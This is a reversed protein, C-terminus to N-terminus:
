ATAEEEEDEYPDRELDKLARDMANMLVRYPVPDQNQGGETAPMWSKRTAEMFSDVFKARLHEELIKIAGPRDGRTLADAVAGLVLVINSYRYFDGQFFLWAEARNQHDAANSKTLNKSRAQENEGNTNCTVSASANIALM